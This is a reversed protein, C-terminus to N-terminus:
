TGALSHKSQATCKWPPNVSVVKDFAPVMQGRNFEGLDGGKKGSPCLSHKRALEAFKAGKALQEKLKEAEDKTEVLIHVAHARAM